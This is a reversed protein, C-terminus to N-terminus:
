VVSCLAGKVQNGLDPLLNRAFDRSFFPTINLDYARPEGPLLFGRWDPRPKGHDAGIKVALRRRGRRAPGAPRCVRGVAEVAAQMEDDYEHHDYVGGGKRKRAHDLLLDRVHKQM